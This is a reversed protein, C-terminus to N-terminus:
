EKKNPIKRLLCDLSAIDEGSKGITIMLSRLTAPRLVSYAGEVNTFRGRIVADIVGFVPALVAQAQEQQQLYGLTCDVNLVMENNGDIKAPCVPNGIGDATLCGLVDGLWGISDNVWNPIRDCIGTGIVSPAGTSFGHGGYAYIHSEFQIGFKALRSQFNLSNQIPVVNDDRAAFLFCPCTNGDIHDVPAIIETGPQCAQAIGLELAAYGLIAANPKNKAVTAACAALHGGASFGIVAIKDPMLNWEDANARILEMAHEYDNLPNPWTRHEAVSYRLVFAHYGATLYPYAVVEAERDSCVSYGGGPLILVAPRRTIKGYDDGVPLLMCSLSVNRGQNLILEKTSLTM